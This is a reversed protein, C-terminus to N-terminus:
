LKQRTDPTGMAPLARPSPSCSRGGTSILPSIGYYFDYEDPLIPNFLIFHSQIPLNTLDFGDAKMKGM